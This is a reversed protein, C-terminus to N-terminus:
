KGGHFFIQILDYLNIVMVTAGKLCKTSRNLWKISNLILKFSLLSVTAELENLSEVTRADGAFRRQMVTFEFTAKADKTLKLPGSMNKPLTSNYRLVITVHREHDHVGELQRPQYIM